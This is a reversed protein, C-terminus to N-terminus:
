GSSFRNWGHVTRYKWRKVPLGTFARAHTQRGIQTQTRRPKRAAPQHSPVSV